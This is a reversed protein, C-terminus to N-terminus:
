LWLTQFILFLVGFNHKYDSGVLKKQHFTAATPSDHLFERGKSIKTTTTRNGKLITFILSILTKFGYKNIQPTCSGHMFPTGLCVFPARQTEPVNPYKHPM